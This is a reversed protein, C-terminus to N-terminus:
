MNNVTQCRVNRMMDVQPFSDISVDYIM